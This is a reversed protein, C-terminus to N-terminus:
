RLVQLRGLADGALLQTVVWVGAVILVLGGASM